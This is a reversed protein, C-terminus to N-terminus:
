KVWVVPQIKYVSVFVGVPFQKTKIKVCILQQKKIARNNNEDVGM